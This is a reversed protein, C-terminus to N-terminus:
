CKEKNEVLWDKKRMERTIVRTMARQLAECRHINISFQNIEIPALAPLSHKQSIYIPCM